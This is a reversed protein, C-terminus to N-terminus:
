AWMRRALRQRRRGETNLGMMQPMFIFSICVLTALHRHLPGGYATLGSVIGTRLHVILVVSLVKAWDDLVRKYRWILQPFFLGHPLTHTHAPKYSSGIHKYELFPVAQSLEKYMSGSKWCLTEQHNECRHECDGVGYLGKRYIIWPLRKKDQHFTEIQKM